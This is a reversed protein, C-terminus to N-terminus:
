VNDSRHGTSERLRSIAPVEFNMETVEEGRLMSLLTEAAKKNMAHQSNSFSTLPPDLFAGTEHDGVGVVAIDDPIGRGSKKIAHYAGVALSDTVTFMCDCRGENELFARMAEYGGVASLSSSIIKEPLRGTERLAAESFATVRGQTAQTLLRPCLVVPRRRGISTLLELASRGLRNPCESVSMYGPVSRGLLVVPFPLKVQALFDDDAALTNTIIAANFRRGEILGPMEKLRGAHFIEIGISYVPGDSAQESMVEEVAQLAYSVLRVPAEYSTLIGIMIQHRSGKHDRLRRAAINPVYGLARAANIVKRVSAESIRREVQRNNLVASVTSPSLGARHAIDKVTISSKSTV